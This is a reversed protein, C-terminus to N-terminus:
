AFPVPDTLRQELSEYLWSHPAIEPDCIVKEYLIRAIEKTARNQSLVDTYNTHIIEAIRNVFKDQICTLSKLEQVIKKVDVSAKEEILAGITPNMDSGPPICYRNEELKGLDLEIDGIILRGTIHWEMLSRKIDEFQEESINKISFSCTRYIANYYETITYTINVEKMADDQYTWHYYTERIHDKPHKQWFWYIDMNDGDFALSLGQATCYTYGFESFWRNSVPDYTSPTNFVTDSDYDYSFTYRYKGMVPDDFFNTKIFEM